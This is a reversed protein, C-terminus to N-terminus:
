QKEEILEFIRYAGVRIRKRYRALAWERFAAFAALQEGPSRGTIRDIPGDPVALFRPPSARMAALFEVRRREREAAYGEIPAVLPYSYLYRTTPTLGSLLNLTQDLGFVMMGDGPRARRRLERAAAELDRSRYMQEEKQFRPLAVYSEATTRGLFRALDDPVAGGYREILGVFQLALVAGLLLSGVARVGRWSSRRALVKGCWALLLAQPPVLLAYHYLWLKGQVPVTLWALGYWVALWRLPAPGRVLLVVAAAAAGSQILGRPACWWPAIFVAAQIRALDGFPYRWTHHRNFGVQVDLLEMVAHNAVFYVVLPAAVLFAGAGAGLLSVAAGRWAFGRGLAGGIPIIAVVLGPLAATAKFLVAAAAAGGAVTWPAIGCRRDRGILAALFAVALLPGAFTEAQSVNWFGGFLSLSLFGFIGAAALGGGRGFLRGGLLYLVPMSLLRFAQDFANIIEVVGVDLATALKVILAYALLIFPQKVEFVDRYLVRGEDVMLGATGFIGQDRGPPIHLGPLGLIAVIGVMAILVWTAGRRTVAVV